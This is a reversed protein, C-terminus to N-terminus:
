MLVPWSNSPDSEPARGSSATEHPLIRISPSLTFTYASAVSTKGSTTAPVHPLACQSACAAAACRSSPAPAPALWPSFCCSFRAYLQECSILAYLLTHM